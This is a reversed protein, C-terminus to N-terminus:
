ESRARPSQAPTTPRRVARVLAYVGWGIITAGAALTALRQINGLRGALDLANGAVGALAGIAVYTLLRGLSHIAALRVSRAGGQLGILPGCMAVCHVSGLASTAVIGALAVITATM